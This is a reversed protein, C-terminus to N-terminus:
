TLFKADHRKRAKFLHGHLATLHSTMLRAAEDADRERLAQLIERHAKVTDQRPPADDRSIVKLVIDTIADVIVVLMENDTGQSLLRYFQLLQLRREDFQGSLTLQETRDISQQLADLTADSARACALRVVADQIIVRSETLSEMSLRGLTVMDGISRTVVAPDGELIFAGGKVGKRLEIIGAIELSRLAERVATRSSGLQQALEREAPLKDGPKLHGLTLQARIQQCIDEFVRPTKIAKSRVAPGLAAGGLLALGSAIAASSDPLAPPKLSPM